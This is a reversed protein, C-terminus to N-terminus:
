LGEIRPAFDKCYTEPIIFFRHKTCYDSLLVIKTTKAPRGIRLKKKSCFTCRSCIWAYSLTEPKM